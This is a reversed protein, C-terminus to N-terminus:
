GQGAVWAQGQHRDDFDSIQGFLKSGSIQGNINEFANVELDFRPFEDCEHPGATRALARKHADDSPDFWRGRALDQEVPDIDGIKVVVLSGQKPSPFDAEDEL